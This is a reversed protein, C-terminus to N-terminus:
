EFSFIFSDSCDLIFKQSFTKLNYFQDLFQHCSIHNFSQSKNLLNNNREKKESQQM